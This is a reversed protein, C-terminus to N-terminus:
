KAPSERVARLAPYGQLYIWDTARAPIHCALCDTQYDTSANDETAGANFLAWGWGEGWNGHGEFRGKTDKILVFWLIEDGAWMVHGTTMNGHEVKRLEKILVGGDPFKGTAQFAALTEPQTYVDHQAADKSDVDISGWSGLHVWENRVRGPFHITGDADVFSPLPGRDWNGSDGEGFAVGLLGCAFVLLLASTLLITKM